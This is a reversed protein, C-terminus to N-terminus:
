INKSISDLIGAKINAREKEVDEKAKKLAALERKYREEERNLEEQRASIEARKNMVFINFENKEKDLTIRKQNVEEALKDTAKKFAVIDEIPKIAEERKELETARETQIKTVQDQKKSIEAVKEREMDLSTKIKRLEDLMAKLQEFLGDM